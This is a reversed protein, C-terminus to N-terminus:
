RITCSQGDLVNTCGNLDRLRRYGHRRHRRAERRHQNRHRVTRREDDRREPQRLRGVVDFRLRRRSSRFPLCRRRRRGPSSPRVTSRAAPSSCTASPTRATRAPVPTLIDVWAGSELMITSPAIESAV